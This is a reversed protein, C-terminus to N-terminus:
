GTNAGDRRGQPTDCSGLSDLLQQQRPVDHLDISYHCYLTNTAHVNSVKCKDAQVHLEDWRPENPKNDGMDVVGWVYSVVALVAPEGDTVVDV